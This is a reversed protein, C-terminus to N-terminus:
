GKLSQHTSGSRGLPILELAGGHLNRWLQVRKKWMGLSGLFAPPLEKAMEFCLQVRWPGYIGTGPERSDRTVSKACLSWRIAARDSDAKTSHETRKTNSKGLSDLTSSAVAEVGKGAVMGNVQPKTNQDFNKQPRPKSLETM